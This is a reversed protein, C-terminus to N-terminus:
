SVGRESLNLLFFNTDAELGPGHADEARPPRFGALIKKTLSTSRHGLGNFEMQLQGSM